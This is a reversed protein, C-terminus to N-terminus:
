IRQKNFFHSRFTNIIIIIITIIITKTDSLKLNDILNKDKIALKLLKRKMTGESRM